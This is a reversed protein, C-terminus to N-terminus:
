QGKYLADLAEDLKIVQPKVEDDSEEDNLTNYLAVILAKYETLANERDTSISNLSGRLL